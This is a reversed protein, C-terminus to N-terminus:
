IHILSLEEAEERSPRVIGPGRGIETQARTRLKKVTADMLSFSEKDPEVCLPRRGNRRKLQSLIVPEDVWRDRSKYDRAGRM